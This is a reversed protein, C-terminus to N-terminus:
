TGFPVGTTMTRYTTRARHEAGYLQACGGHDGLSVRDHGDGGVGLAQTM